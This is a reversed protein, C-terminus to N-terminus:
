GQTLTARCKKKKAPPVSALIDTPSHILRARYRGTASAVCTPECDQPSSLADQKGTLASVRVNRHVYACLWVAVERERERERERTAPVNLLWCVVVGFQTLTLRTDGTTKGGTEKSGHSSSHRPREASSLTRHGLRASGSQRNRSDATETGTLEM